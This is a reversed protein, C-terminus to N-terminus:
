AGNVTEPRAPKWASFNYAYSLIHKFVGFTMSNALASKPGGIEHAVTEVEFGAQELLQVIGSRTFFRVHTWDMVGSEQYEWRGAFLLPFVVSHHRVNPIAGVFQGGPRLWTHIRRVIKWPDTLHELVHGALILDFPEQSFDIKPDEISGPIVSNLGRTRALKAVEESYEVGVTYKAGKQKLYELTQGAACGIELVREPTRKVLSLMPTRLQAYYESEPACRDNIM